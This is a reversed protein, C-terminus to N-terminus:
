KFMLLLLIKIKEKYYMNKNLIFEKKYKLILKRMEKIYLKSNPNKLKKDSQKINYFYMIVGSILGYFSSDLISPMKEILFSITQDTVKIIDITPVKIFKRMASDNERDVYYYKTTNTYYIKDTNYISKYVFVLDEYVAINPFEIKDKIIELEFLKGCPGWNLNKFKFLEELAEFYTYYGEDITRIFKFKYNKDICEIDCCVIKADKTEAINYLKELYDEKIRDDSDIFCIYKGNAKDIGNNRATSVGKNEQNILTIRNDYEAYKQCIQLTNDESGDNILILEISKLTQNLIDKICLEIFEGGNYVPVIVSVKVM